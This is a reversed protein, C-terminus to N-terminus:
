PRQAAATLLLVLAGLGATARLMWTIRASVTSPGEVGAAAARAILGDAYSGAVLMAVVVLHKVLMLTAWNDAVNGPGAYRSDSTQLYIGTALFAVLSAVLAPLARRELAAIIGIGAGAPLGSVSPLVIVAMVVYYGVLIVTGVLHAWLALIPLDM